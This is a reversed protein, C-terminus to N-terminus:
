FSGIKFDLLGIEFRNNTQIVLQFLQKKELPHRSTRVYIGYLFQTSKSGDKKAGFFRARGTRATQANIKFHFCHIPLFQAM